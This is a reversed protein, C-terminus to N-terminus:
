ASRRERWDALNTVAQNSVSEVISRERRAEAFSVAGAAEVRAEIADMGRARRESASQKTIGLVRACEAMSAGRRPDIAYRDANVAITVNTVESLRTKLAEVQPLMEPDDIARAELARVMRWMMLLFDSNEIVPRDPRPKKTAPRPPRIVAAIEDASHRGM